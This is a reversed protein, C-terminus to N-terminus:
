SVNLMGRMEMTFKALYALFDAIEKLCVCVVIKISRHADKDSKIPVDARRSTGENM